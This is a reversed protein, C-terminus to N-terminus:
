RSRFRHAPRAHLLAASNEPWKIAHQLAGPTTPRRRM